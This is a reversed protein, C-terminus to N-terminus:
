RNWWGMPMVAPVRDRYARYTEGFTQELWAEEDRVLLRLAIYMPVPVLLGIWSNALLVMGPVNFVVWSGYIPHRCLGYVGGTFLAGKPFGRKLAVVGAVCLPLGVALLLCGLVIVVPRPVIPIAFFEPWRMRAAIAPVSFLVSLAVWKPGVGFATMSGKPTTSGITDSM